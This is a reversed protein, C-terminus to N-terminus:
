NKIIYKYGTHHNELKLNNKEVFEDIAINAGRWDYGKKLSRIQNKEYDDFTVIGGKKLKPFFFELCDKHSQYLDVDM